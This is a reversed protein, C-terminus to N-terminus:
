TAVSISFQGSATTGQSDRVLATFSYTGTATPTGFLADGIRTLGPPLAGATIAWTYPMVGGTASLVAGYPQGVAGAPLVNVGAEIALAPAALVSITFTRRATAGTGDTVRITLTSTGAATPTGVIRIEPRNPLTNKVFRTGAPVKGSMLTFKFTSPGPPDSAAISALYPEGVTADPLRAPTLFTLPEPAGVTASAATSAGSVNGAADIAAVSYTYTGAALGTEQYTTDNTTSRVAGNRSVRYGVVAVNDTSPEWSLSVTTGVITSVVGVPVSPATTDGAAALVRTTGVGTPAVAAVAGAPAALTVMLMGTTLVLWRTRKTPLRRASRTPTM